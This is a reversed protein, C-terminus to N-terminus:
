TGDERLRGHKKFLEAIDDGYAWPNEIIAELQAMEEAHTVVNAFPDYDPKADKGYSQPWLEKLLTYAMSDGNVVWRTHLDRMLGVRAATWRQFFHRFVEDADKRAGMDLITQLARPNVNCLRAVWETKLGLRGEEILQTQLEPTFWPADAAVKALKSV